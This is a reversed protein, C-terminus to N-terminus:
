GDAIGLRIAWQRLPESAHLAADLRERFATHTVLRSSLRYNEVVYTQTGEFRDADTARLTQEDSTM